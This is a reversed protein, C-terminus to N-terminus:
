QGEYESYEKEEVCELLIDSLYLNFEKGFKKFYSEAQEGRYREALELLNEKDFYHNYHHNLHGIFELMVDKAKQRDNKYMSIKKFYFDFDVADQNIHQKFQDIDVNKFDVYDNLLIEDISKGEKRQNMMVELRLQQKQLTEIRDALVEKQLLLIEDITQVNNLTKEIDELSLGSEQLTHIMFLKIVDNADYVRHNSSNREPVLLGIEDYYRVTRITNGTLVSIDKVTYNM